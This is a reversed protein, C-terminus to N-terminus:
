AKTRYTVTVRATVDVSGSEVPTAADAAMMMREAKPFPRPPAWAGDEVVSLVEAISVGAAEALVDARSRAESVARKRAEREVPEPDALRFSLGDMSTAGARLAGDIVNTLRALDRITVEVVNSLEFGAPQPPENDHYAYRPQLNLLRTQIDSKPVGNAGVSAVVDAMIRAAEDRLEGVDGRSLTVGLRVDAVDPQVLVRGTGTM